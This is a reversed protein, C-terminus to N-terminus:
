KVNYCSLAATSTGVRATTSVPLKYYDSEVDTGGLTVGKLRFELIGEGKSVFPELDALSQKLLVTARGEEGPLVTGSVLATECGKKPSICEFGTIMITGPRQWSDQAFDDKTAPLYSEVSITLLSRQGSVAPFISLYGDKSDGAFNCTLKKTEEGKEATAVMHGKIIMDTNDASCAASLMATCILGLLTKNM